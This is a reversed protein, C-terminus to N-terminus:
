KTIVVTIAYTDGPTTDKEWPRAYVLQLTTEGPKLAKFTFTEEGGAGMIGTNAHPTYQATGVQELLKEDIQSVQWQYGTTPNSKLTVDFTKGVTAYVTQGDNLKTLSTCGTVLAAALVFATVISLMKM